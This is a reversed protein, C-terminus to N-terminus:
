NGFSLVKNAKIKGIWYFKRAKPALSNMVDKGFKKKWRWSFDSSVHNQKCFEMRVLGRQRWSEYLAKQEEDLRGKSM